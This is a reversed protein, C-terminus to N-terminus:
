VCPRVLGMLTERNADDAPALPLHAIEDATFWGLGITGDLCEGKGSVHDVRYCIVEVMEGTSASPLACWYVVKAGNSSILIGTEEHLERELAAAHTECSNVKGGPTCWKFPHSTTGSRQTLLLRGDKVIAASVVTISM